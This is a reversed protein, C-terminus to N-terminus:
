SHILFTVSRIIFHKQYLDKKKTHHGFNTSHVFFSCETCMQMQVSFLIITYFLIVKCHVVNFADISMTCTVACTVMCTVTCTVTM